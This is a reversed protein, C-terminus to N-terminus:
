ISIWSMSPLLSPTHVYRLLSIWKELQMGELYGDFARVILTSLKVLLGEITQKTLSKKTLVNLSSGIDVLVRSLLTNTCEISIHLAKSYAKGELPFEDDCFGLCGGAAINAVVGEFQNVIIKQPVHTAILFKILADRHAESCLLLSLISIKSPTQNLQDVM